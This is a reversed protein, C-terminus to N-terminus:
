ELFVKFRDNLNRYYIPNKIVLFTNDFYQIKISNIKVYDVIDSFWISEFLYSADEM